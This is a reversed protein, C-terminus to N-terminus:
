YDDEIEDEFEEEEAISEEEESDESPEDNDDNPIDADIDMELMKRKGFDETVLRIDIEVGSCSLPVLMHTAIVDGPKYDYWVCIADDAKIKPINGAPAYKQLFADRSEGSLIERKIVGNKEQTREPLNMMLLTTPIVEMRFRHNTVTKAKKFAAASFVLAWLKKLQDSTVRKSESRVLGFDRYFLVIDEPVVSLKNKKHIIPLIVKKITEITIRSEMIVLYCLKNDDTWLLYDEGTIIKPDNIGTRVKIFSRLGRELCKLETQVDFM